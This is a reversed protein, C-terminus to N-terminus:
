FKNSKEMIRKGGVSAFHVMRKLVKVINQSM